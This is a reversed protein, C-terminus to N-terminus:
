PASAPVSPREPKRGGKAAMFATWAKFVHRAAALDPDGPRKRKADRKQAAPIDKALEVGLSRPLRCAGGAIRLSSGMRVLRLAAVDWRIFAHVTADYVAWVPSAEEKLLDLM